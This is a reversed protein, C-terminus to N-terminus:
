YGEGSRQQHSGAAGLRGGDLADGLTTREALTGHHVMRGRAAPRQAILHGETQRDGRYSCVAHKSLPYGVPWVLRMYIGPCGDHLAEASDM